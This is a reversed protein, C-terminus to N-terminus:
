QLKFFIPITYDVAIKKGNDVAPTWDPMSSIVRVAEADLLPNTGKVIKVQNVKGEASINFGVFVKGEIKDLKAQEPYKINDSLYKMLAEEGGPFGNFVSPPTPPIPPVPPEGINKENSTKSDNTQDISENKCAFIFVMLAVAPIALLIRFKSALSANKRKMMTLRKITLSKNLNNAFGPQVGITQELLLMSYRDSDFGHELVGKDALYEHTEKLANRFKRAFPNYWQLICIIELIIADASHLQEAHTKEHILIKNFEPNEIEKENAFIMKFFSFTSIERQSFILKLNGVTQKRGQKYIKGVQFIQITFKLGTLIFGLLYVYKLATILLNTNKLPADNRLKGVGVSVTNLVHAFTPNASTKSITFSLFPIQINLNTRYNKL